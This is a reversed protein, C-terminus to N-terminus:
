DAKDGACTMTPRLKAMLATNVSRSSPSRGQDVGMRLRRCQLPGPPRILSPKGVRGYAATTLEVAGRDHM